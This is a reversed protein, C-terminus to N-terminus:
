SSPQFISIGSSLKLIQNWDRMPLSRVPDDLMTASLGFETEIGWLYAVFRFWNFGKTSYNDTEIGWLYAVFQPPQSRHIVSLHNWDRMPLSRVIFYATILPLLNVNWDRMPLSRVQRHCRQATSMALNWDRMPLSRVYWSLCWLFLWRFNWDRM